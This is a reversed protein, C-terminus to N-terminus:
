FIWLNPVTFNKDPHNVAKYKSGDIIINLQSFLALKCYLLIFQQCANHVILMKLFRKMDVGHLVIQPTYGTLSKRVAQTTQLWM